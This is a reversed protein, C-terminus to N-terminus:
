GFTIVLEPPKESGKERSNFSQEFGPGNENADRILFGTNTGTYMAQVQSTVSWEVYGPTSRSPASAAAGTTAPQNSWSVGGEDWSGGLRLAQLIRGETYAGSYLRLTASKVQCGKPIVPLAFGALARANAGDRADVELVSDGGKTDDPSSQLVWADRDAVATKPGSCDVPSAEVTWSRRPPSGDLKGASTNAHIRVEHAEAPSPTSAAPGTTALENSQSPGGESGSEGLKASELACGALSESFRVLAGGPASASSCDPPEITWKHSAPTPDRNGARDVARVRFEHDGIALGTYQQPPSCPAFAAGDLACDFSAHRENSSFRFSADTSSTKAAPKASARDPANLAAVGALALAVALGALWRARRSLPWGPRSLSM